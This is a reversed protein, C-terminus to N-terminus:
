FERGIQDQVPIFHVFRGIAKVEEAHCRTADKIFSSGPSDPQFYM